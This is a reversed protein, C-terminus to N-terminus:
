RIPTMVLSLFGIRIVQEMEKKTMTRGSTRGLQYAQFDTLKIEVTQWDESKSYLVKKYYPAFWQRDTELTLGINQGSAKYRIRVTSFSSLDWRTYPSKISSFGGNNELSISGSWYLSEKRMEKVGKSQGGMVGDNLIEWDQGGTKAGFNISVSPHFILPFFLLFACVIKLM